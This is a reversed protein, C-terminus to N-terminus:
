QRGVVSVLSKGKVKEGSRYPSLNTMASLKKSALTKGPSNAVKDGMNFSSVNQIGAEEKVERIAAEFFSEPPDVRGGPLWWGRNKTEKVALWKGENNRCVILAIGLLTFHQNIEM